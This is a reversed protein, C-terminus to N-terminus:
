RRRWGCRLANLLLHNLLYEAYWFYLGAARTLLPAPPASGSLSLASRFEVCCIHQAIPVFLRLFSPNSRILVTCGAHDVIVAQADICAVAYGEILRM